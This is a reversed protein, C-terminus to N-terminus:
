RDYDSADDSLDVETSRLKFLPSDDKEKFLATDDSAYQNSPNISEVIQSPESDSEFVFDEHKSDTDAM